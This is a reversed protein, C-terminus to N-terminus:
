INIYIVIVNNIHQVLICSIIVSLFIVIKVINITQRPNSNTSIQIQRHKREILAM